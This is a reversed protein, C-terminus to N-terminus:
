GELEPLETVELDVAGAAPPDLAPPGLRRPDILGTADAPPQSETPTQAASPAAVVAVPEPLPGQDPQPHPGTALDPAPQPTM